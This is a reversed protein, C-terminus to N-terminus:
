FSYRAALRVYSNDSYQGLFDGSRGAIGVATATARWHPGFGQSFTARGYVGGGDQRLAGELELSRRGDLSRTARLVFSRSLGREPSFTAVARRQTVAEGAYGGGVVWEGSQREVQLVYLVYEDTVPSSSTYWAAEGKVTVWRVPIAFAAGYSRLPPFVRRVSVPTSPDAAVDTRLDPLHNFGDFFSLAYELGGAVHEWRLGAQHGSPFTAPELVVPVGSASWPAWRQDALPLRSPTLRPLWVAEFTHAGARASVRAGTVPLLEPELVNLFDRPAFRDTPSVVDTKGWRVFQKGLDATFPGGRVTAAIRRVALRPRRDGRDWFDVNWGDAVQDHSDARLDLGAAFQLAHAPKVFVEGRLLLDGVLQEPDNDAERPYAVGAAQAFGRHTLVQAFAPGPSAALLAFCLLRRV